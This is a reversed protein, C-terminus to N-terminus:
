QQCQLCSWEVTNLSAQLQAECGRSWEMDCLRHISWKGNIDRMRPLKIIVGRIMGPPVAHATLPIINHPFGLWRGCEQM